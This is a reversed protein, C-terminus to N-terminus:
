LLRLLVVVFIILLVLAGWRTSKQLTGPQPFEYGCVPCRNHNAEVQMACGPCERTGFDHGADIKM